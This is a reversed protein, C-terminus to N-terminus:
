EILKPMELKVSSRVSSWISLHISSHISPCISLHISSHISPCIIPHLSPHISPHISPYFPPYISVNEKHEVPIQRRLPQQGSGGWKKDCVVLSGPPPFQQGNVAKPSSNYVSNERVRSEKEIGSEVMMWRWSDAPGSSQKDMYGYKEDVAESIAESTEGGRIWIWEWRMCVRCYNM